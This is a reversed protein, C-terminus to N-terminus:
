ILKKRSWFPHTLINKMEKVTIKGTSLDKVPYWISQIGIDLVFGYLEDYNFGVQSPDHSDDSLTFRIGQSKM